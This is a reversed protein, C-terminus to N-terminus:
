FPDADVAKGTRLDFRSQIVITIAHAWEEEPDYLYDKMNVAQKLTMQDPMAIYGFREERKIVGREAESLDLYQIKWSSDDGWICGAVFGFQYYLLPSVPYSPKEVVTREGTKEDLPTYKTTGAVLDEASPENVRHRHIEDNLDIYEREIYSPVYYDVPCFGYGSPEEGGLDECSPLTMVRTVTYEPSYLAYDKGDKQFHYFTRLLNPYNREYEGIQEESKGEIRFVGVRVGNWTGPRYEIQSVVKALYM